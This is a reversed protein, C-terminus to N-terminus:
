RTLIFGLKQQSLRLSLYIRSSGYHIVLLLKKHPLLSYNL